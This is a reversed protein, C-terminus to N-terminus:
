VLPHRPNPPVEIAARRGNPQASETITGPSIAAGEDPRWSEGEVHRAFM